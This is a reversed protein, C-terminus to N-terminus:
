KGELITNFVLHQKKPTDAKKRSTRCLHSCKEHSTLCYVLLLEEGVSRSRMSCVFLIDNNYLLCKSSGAILYLIYIRVASCHISPTALHGVATRFDSM